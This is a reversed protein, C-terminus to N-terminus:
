RRAPPHDTVLGFLGSAGREVVTGGLARRWQKTTGWEQRWSWLRRSFQHLPYERTVGIAGHAQHAARTGVTIADDVIVRAAAIEHLGGGREFARLAVDAAMKARVACEAVTVLHLQVAQFTAIPKGFQHRDNAYDVTLQAMSALAGSAMITRSLSGRLALAAALADSASDDVCKSTEWEGAPAHIAVTDRAEGAANAGPTIAVQDPRLSVVHVGDGDIPQLAVIREAHRAFAVAAMTPRGDITRAHAGDAVTVVGAPLELGATALLWGGLLATEAVPVPAAHRGVADLIAALDHLTGGSGGKAEDIGVWPFGADALAAWITPSWGTLEAHEVEDQTSLDGLLREVTEVLLRDASM